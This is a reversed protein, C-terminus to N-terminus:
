QLEATRACDTALWTLVALWGRSSLLGVVHIGSLNEEDERDKPPGDGVVHRGRLSLSGVVTEESPNRPGPATRASEEENQAIKQKKKWRGTSLM